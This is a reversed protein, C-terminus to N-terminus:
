LSPTAWSTYFSRFPTVESKQPFLSLTTHPPSADLGGEGASAASSGARRVSPRVSPATPCPVPGAPPWPEWSVPLFGLMLSVPRGQRHPGCPTRVALHFVIDTEVFLLRYQVHFTSLLLFHRWRVIGGARVECPLARRAGSSACGAEESGVNSGVSVRSLEAIPLYKGFWRFRAVGARGFEGQSSVGCRGSGIPPKEANFLPGLGVPM